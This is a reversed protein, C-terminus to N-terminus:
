QPTMRKTGSAIIRDFLQTRFASHNPQWNLAVFVVQLRAASKSPLGKRTSRGPERLAAPLLEALGVQNVIM